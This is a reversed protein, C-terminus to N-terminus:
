ILFTCHRVFVPVAPSFTLATRPSVTTAAPPCAAPAGLEKLLPVLQFDKVVTRNSSAPALPAPSPSPAPTSVCCPCQAACSATCRAPAAAPKGAFLNGTLVGLCAALVALGRSAGGLITKLDNM